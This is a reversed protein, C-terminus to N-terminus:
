RNTRVGAVLLWKPQAWLVGPVRWGRDDLVALSGFLTHYLTNPYRRGRRRTLLWWAREFLSVIALEDPVRDFTVVRCQCVHRQYLAVLRDTTVCGLWEQERGSERLALFDPREYIDRNDLNPVVDFIVGGPRTTRVREAMYVDWTEPDLHNLTSLAMNLDFVGDRFPVPRAASGTVTDITYGHHQALRRGLHLMPWSLDFSVCRVGQRVLSECQLGDGGGWQAVRSLTSPLLDAVAQMALTMQRERKDKYMWYYSGPVVSAAVTAYSSAQVSEAVTLM